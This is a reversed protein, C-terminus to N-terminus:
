AAPALRADPSSVNSKTIVTFGREPRAIGYMVAAAELLGFLPMSVVLAVFYGARTRRRLEVGTDQQWAALNLRLGSVYMTLYWAFCLTGLWSAVPHTELGIVVNVLTYVAGVMAAGWLVLFGFLTTRAWAKSPAFLAVRFLGNWWRRRQKVFDSMREPAQEVVYGNVWAFEVGAAQAAMAFWADETLSGDAGVDLGIRQEVDNRIVIYSGHMGM